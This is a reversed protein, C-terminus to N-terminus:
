KRTLVLKDLGEIDLTVKNCTNQDMTFDYTAETSNNFKGTITVANGNTKWKGVPSFYVGLLLGNSEVYSGDAKFEIMDAHLSDSQMIASWKGILNKVIAPAVCEQDKEKHCSIFILATVFISLLRVTM